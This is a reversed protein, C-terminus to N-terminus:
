SSSKSLLWDLALKVTDFIELHVNHKLKFLTRMIQLSDKAEIVPEVWAMKLEKPFVMKEYWHVRTLSEQFTLPKDKRYLILLNCNQSKLEALITRAIVLFSHLDATGSYCAHVVKNKYKLDLSLASM